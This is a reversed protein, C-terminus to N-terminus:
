KKRKFPRKFASKKGPTYDPTKGFSEPVPMKTVTIKMLDEIVKFKSQESESILTIAKGESAARATRGIRHIYSEGDGPVDYNIILDIDEIDIGRALVDTAVLIMLKRNIFSMLVEERKAQELDSHMEGVSLGSRRLSVALERTKVKTSCFVLISKGIYQKLVEMFLPLKQNSYVVYAEQKVREAPQSIAIGIEKPHNMIKRSLERIKSPMTASFLMTQRKKPLKSIILMIDDIFGMDLMRDAEDLVLFELQDFKVYGMNLHSILRGPTCILMDAGKSMASQERSYAIGDTGGFVAISSVSTFYSIGEMMRDIQLALERTPVIILARTIGPKPDHVIKQIVPLLFAATKGTGTQASAILDHGELLVPIAKEQVPTPTQYGLAEIGEMLSQDFGFDKFSIM